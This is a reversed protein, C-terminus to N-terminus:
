RGFWRICVVLARAGVESHAADRKEQLALVDRRLKQITDDRRGLESKLVAHHDHTSM